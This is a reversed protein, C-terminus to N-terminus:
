CVVHGWKDWVQTCQCGWETLKQLLVVTKFPVCRVLLRKILDFVRDAIHDSQCVEFPFQKRKDVATFFEVGVYVASTKGNVSVM